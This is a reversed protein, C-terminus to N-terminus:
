EYGKRLGLLFHLWVVANAEEPKTHHFPLAYENGFGSCIACVVALELEWLRHLTQGRINILWTGVRQSDFCALVIRAHTGQSDYVGLRRVGSLHIDLEHWSSSAYYNIKYNNIESRVSFIFLSVFSCLNSVIAWYFIHNFKCIYIILIITAHQWLYIFLYM